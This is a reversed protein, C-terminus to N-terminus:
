GAKSGTEVGYNAFTNTIAGIFYVDKEDHTVTM